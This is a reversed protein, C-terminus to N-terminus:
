PRAEALGRGSRRRRRAVPGWMDKARDNDVDLAAPDADRLRQENDAIFRALKRPLIALDAGDRERLPKVKESSLKRKLEIQVVARDRVTNPPEGIGAIITPAWTSFM